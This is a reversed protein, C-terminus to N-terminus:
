PRLEVKMWGAKHQDFMRYADLASAIPQAQTIVQEPQVAGGAITSPIVVRDGPKFNRVNAGVEEVIGVAEHGLITGEEMGPMTGRIMHLDTGCIGSGTIRVRVDNPDQITPEPVDDLRIDGEDHYVVAKM